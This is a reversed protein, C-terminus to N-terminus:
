CSALAQGLVVFARRRPLLHLHLQRLATPASLQHRYAPHSLKGPRIVLRLLACGARYWHPHGAAPRHGHHDSLVGVAPYVGDADGSFYCGEGTFSLHWTCSGDDHEATITTASVDLAM